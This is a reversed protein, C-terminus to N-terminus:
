VKLPQRSLKLLIKVNRVKATAQKKTAADAANLNDTRWHAPLSSGVSAPHFPVQTLM